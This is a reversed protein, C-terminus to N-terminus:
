EKKAEVLLYPPYSEVGKYHPTIKEIRSRTYVRVHEPEMGPPMCDHPVTYVVRDTVEFFKRLMGVDDDLHELVETCVVADWKRGNMWPQTGVTANLCRSKCIEVAKPSIDVGVSFRSLRALLDGRGCGFDLVAKGEFKKAIDDYFALQREGRQAWQEDWYESTNKNPADAHRIDRQELSQYVQLLSVAKYHHCPNRWDCHVKFGAERARNCFLLDSGRDVCGWEDWDRVFAPKMDPHKLVRSAILLCGSGMADVEEVSAVLNDRGKAFWAGSEEGWSYVNFMVPRSGTLVADKKWIPTPLGVIDYDDDVLDLVNFPFQPPNDSDMFLLYDYHGKELFIKILANRCNDTPRRVLQQIELDIHDPVQSILFHVYDVVSSHLEGANPLALLVSKRPKSM